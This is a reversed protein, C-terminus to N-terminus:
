FEPSLTATLTWNPNNSLCSCFREIMSVVNKYTEKDESIIAFHSLCPSSVLSCVSSSPNGNFARELVSCALSFNKEPNKTNNEFKLLTAYM